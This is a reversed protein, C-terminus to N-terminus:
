IVTLKALYDYHYGEKVLECHLGAEKAHKQLLRFDVFLWNFKDSFQNKYQFEFEVEGYYKEGEPIHYEGNVDKYMYIVDSSDMIIQGNKHLLSKLHKLFTTLQEISESIGIGNMLSMVTDYKKNKLEWINQIKANTVGRNKCTEIAGESIDIATVDFQKEQLYLSHSGAGCGVDLIKGKCLQLAAQELMPMEDYTRFLWPLEMKDKGAITSFTTIDETYNDSQYDLLAKGFIDNVIIKGM